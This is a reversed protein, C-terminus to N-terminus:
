IIKWTAHDKQLFKKIDDIIESKQKGFFERSGKHTKRRKIGRWQFDYNISVYYKWASLGIPMSEVYASKIREDIDIIDSEYIM